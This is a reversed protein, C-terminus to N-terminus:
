FLSFQQFASMAPTKYIKKFLTQGAQGSADVLEQLDDICDINYFLNNKTLYVISKKELKLLNIINNLTGKSEGNWIMFGFDADNAMAVDKAAYYDFGRTRPPVDVKCIEWNGINNRAKGDSAYVVVDRYNLNFFYRQVACDVGSADGVAVTYENKFINNLRDQINKDLTSIARAGAIFVKM